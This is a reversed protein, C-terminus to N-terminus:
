RMESIVQMMSNYIVMIYADQGAQSTLVAHDNTNSIFGPELLISPMTTNRLVSLNSQRVGRDLLGLANVMNQHFINAVRNRTISWNDEDDRPIYYTETGSVSQRYFGNVHISIFLDAVDNAMEAREVLPVFVDTTRTAFARLNPHNNIMTYVRNSIDLVYNAEVTGFHIAGPDTGGHGPDLFVVFDYLDRPHISQIAFGGGYANVFRASSIHSSDHLIFQTVGGSHSIEIFDVYDGFFPIMGHGFHGSFDGNLTFVNRNERYDHVHVAHLGEMHLFLNNNERDITVNRFTPPLFRIFTDNGFHIVEYNAFENIALVVYGDVYYVDRVFTMDFSRNALAYAKDSIDGEVAVRIYRDIHQNVTVTPAWDGRIWLFDYGGDHRVDLGQINNAAFNIIIQTRDASLSIEYSLLSNMDFVIRSMNYNTHEYARATNINTLNIGFSEPLDITANEVDVVLRADLGNEAEIVFHEAFTISSSAQIILTNGSGTVMTVETQPSNVRPLITENQTFGSLNSSYVNTTYSIAGHNPGALATPATPANAYVATTGVLTLLALGFKTSLKLKM